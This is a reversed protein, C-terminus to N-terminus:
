GLVLPPSTLTPACQGVFQQWEEDTFRVADPQYRTQLVWSGAIIPSPTAAAFVGEVYDGATVLERSYGLLGDADPILTGASYTGEVNTSPITMGSVGSMDDESEYLWLSSTQALGTNPRQGAPPIFLVSIKVRLRSDPTPVRFTITGGGAVVGGFTALTQPQTYIRQTASDRTWIKM